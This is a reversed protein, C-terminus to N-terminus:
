EFPQGFTIRNGEPDLVVFDRLGWPRSVPEGQVNAGKAVLEAHLADADRVYVYCSGIGQRQPTKPILLVTVDDRDMVGFDDQAYNIHFGLVDRYHAVGAAVDALPLEPLAQELLATPRPTDPQHYSQAFWLVHGDPDRLEFVSMKIWNANEIGSPEGGRARIAERMAELDDTQFFVVASGRPREQLTSDYATAQTGLQLRAAGYVAEAEAPVNDGHAIHRVDFGLVDRYFAISRELDAVALHRSVPIVIAPTQSM